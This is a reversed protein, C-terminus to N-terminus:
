FEQSIILILAVPCFWDKDTDLNNLIDWNFSKSNGGPLEDKLPKYDFLFYDVSEYLHIKNLDSKRSVSISKIIKM